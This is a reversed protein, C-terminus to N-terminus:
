LAVTTNAAQKLTSEVIRRTKTWASNAQSMSAEIHDGVFRIARSEVATGERVLSKMTHGAENQVWERTVAAAGLTALWVQRSSALLPESIERPQFSITTTKLM